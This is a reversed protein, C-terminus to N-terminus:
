VDEDGKQPYPRFEVTQADEYEGLYFISRSIELLYGKGVLFALFANARFGYKRGPLYENDKLPNDHLYLSLELMPHFDVLAVFFGIVSYDSYEGSDVQILSGQKAIESM